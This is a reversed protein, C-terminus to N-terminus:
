NVNEVYKGSPVLHLTCTNYLKKLHKQDINSINQAIHVYVTYYKFSILGVVVWM